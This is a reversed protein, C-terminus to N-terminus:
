KITPQLESELCIRPLKAPICVTREVSDVYTVNIDSRYLKSLTTETLINDPDGVNFCGNRDLIGVRSNLLMIHDPNHSTLIVSYGQESLTKIMSLARLQNGYDLHNTPEDLMIIQPQQVIAKAISAQQREGGSLHTYPRFALETLGMMKLTDDVIRYDERGPQQFARLYPARGMAVFDRVTYDYAPMHNQPVYGIIRAVDKLSYEHIPRGDLCITGSAPKLLNAICNLLTSKGAGNAGLITLIEGQTLLFSVDHFVRRGLEYSFSLDKVELIM